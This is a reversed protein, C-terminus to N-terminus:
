RGEAELFREADIAAMCGSGAATIAQRYTHDQVDGCAFVGPVKTKAGKGATILYGSEDMDLQGVFLETNPQHGIAVFLGDTSLERQEKTRVDELLVGRIVDRTGMATAEPKTLIEAVTKHLEWHIKPNARARELMIRSARFEERRHIITVKSCFRTLFNAEEMATDGGGIVVVEMNRFLAGDCTACASVGGGSSMLEKERPIGLLKANAGTSIILTRARVSGSSETQVLFPRENLDVRTVNDSVVECGFREAQKKMREMLEPGQVGEPFGPYNEVDSTIMLQGGPTNPISGEFVLPQLNARATYLAATWGAPGSGIVVVNHINEATM